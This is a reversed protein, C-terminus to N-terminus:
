TLVVRFLKKRSTAGRVLSVASAAVGFHAAVLARIVETARGKDPPERVWIALSGDPLAEVREQRSGPKAKVTVHITKSPNEPM